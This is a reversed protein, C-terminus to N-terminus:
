SGASAAAELYRRTAQRQLVPAIPGALRALPHHARWFVEITFTGAGSGDPHREVVFAEEGEEPHLQLTGYAFGFRRGPEDVTAVVRCAALVHGAVPMPAALVVTTGTAVPGDAVLQLGAQRHVRWSRLAEVTAEFDPVEVSARDHRYGPPARLPSPALTSGIGAYRPEHGVQGDLVRRLETDDPRRFRLLM